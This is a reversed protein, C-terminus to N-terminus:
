RLELINKRSAALARLRQELLKIADPDSNPQSRERHLEAKTSAEEQNLRQVALERTLLDQEAWDSSHIDQGEM